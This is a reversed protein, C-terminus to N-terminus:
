AFNAAAEVEIRGVMEGHRTFVVEADASRPISPPFFRFRPSDQWFTPNNFACKRPKIMGM